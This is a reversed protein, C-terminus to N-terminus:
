HTPRFDTPCNECDGARAVKHAIRAANPVRGIAQADIRMRVKYSVAVPSSPNYHAVPRTPSCCRAKTATAPMSVEWVVSVACAWTTFRSSTAARMDRMSLNDCFKGLDGPLDGPLVLWASSTSRRFARASISELFISLALLCIDEKPLACSTADHPSFSLFSNIALHLGPERPEFGLGDGFDASRPLNKGEDELSESSPGDCRDRSRWPRRFSRLFICSDALNVGIAACPFTDTSLYSERQVHM